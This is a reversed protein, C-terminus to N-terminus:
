FRSLHFVPYPRLYMNLAFIRVNQRQNTFNLFYHLIKFFSLNWEKIALRKEFSLLELFLTERLNWSDFIKSKRAKSHNKTASILIRNLRFRTLTKLVNNTRYNQNSYKPLIKVEIHSIKFFIVYSKFALDSEKIPNLKECLNTRFKFITSSCFNENKVNRTQRCNNKTSIM